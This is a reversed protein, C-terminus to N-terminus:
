GVVLKLLSGVGRLFFHIFLDVGYIGLGFAFISVIVIRGCIRLEAKTTWSVKKMEDRMEQVFTQVGAGIKRSSPLSVVKRAVAM